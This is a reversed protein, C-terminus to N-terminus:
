KISFSIPTGIPVDNQNSSPIARLAINIEQGSTLFVPAHNSGIGMNAKIPISVTGTGKGSPIEGVPLYVWEKSYDPRGDTLQAQSLYVDYKRDPLLNSITLLVKEGVGPFLNDVRWTMPAAPNTLAPVVYDPAIWEAPSKKLSRVEISDAFVIALGWAFKAGNEEPTAYVSYVLRDPAPDYPEVTSYSAHGRKVAESFPIAATMGEVVRASLAASAVQEAKKLEQQTSDSSAAGGIGSPLLSCAQISLTLLLAVADARSVKPLHKKALM